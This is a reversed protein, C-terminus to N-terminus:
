GSVKATDSTSKPNGTEGFLLALDADPEGAMAQSACRSMIPLVRKVRFCTPIM